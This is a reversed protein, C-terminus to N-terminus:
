NFFFFYIVYVGCNYSDKQIVHDLFETCWNKYDYKKKRLFNMVQGFYFSYKKNEDGLPDIFTFKKQEIDLKILIFHNNRVIPLIIESKDITVNQVFSESLHDSCVIITSIELSFIQYKNDNLLHLCHDIIFSSLCQKESLTDFDEIFIERVPLDSINNVSVVYNRSNKLNKYYNIDSILGNPM